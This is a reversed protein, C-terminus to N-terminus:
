EQCYSRTVCREKSNFTKKLCCSPVALVLTITSLNDQYIVQQKLKKKPNVIFDYAWEFKKLREPMVVFKDETSDKTSIEQKCCISLICTFGLIVVICAHGKGKDHASFASIIYGELAM